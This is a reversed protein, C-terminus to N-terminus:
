SITIVQRHTERRSGFSGIRERAKARFRIVRTERAVMKGYNVINEQVYQHSALISERRGCQLLLM